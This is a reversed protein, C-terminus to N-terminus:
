YTKISLDHKKCMRRVYFKICLEPKIHIQSQSKAQSTAAPMFKCQAQVM